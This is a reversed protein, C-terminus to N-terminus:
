CSGRIYRYDLINLLNFPLMLTTVSNEEEKNIKERGRGQKEGKQEEKKENVVTEYNFCPKGPPETNFFRGVLAPSVSPM